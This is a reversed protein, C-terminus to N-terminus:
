EIHDLNEHFTEAMRMVSRRRIDSLRHLLDSGNRAAVRDVLIGERLAAESVVIRDIALLDVIEELLIAGAVIIDRRHEDLGAIDDRDSAHKRETITAVADQLGDASFSEGNSVVAVDSEQGAVIRALNLITGSSGVTTFPSLARVDAIAPALFSRVYTRCDRVSHPGIEGDPFFRDTLRIAGLKLSRAMLVETGEGIVLETSGGGIDIVLIREDLLPVFQIVGLHILRAEEVGSVIDVDIGVEDSARRLFEARNVAERLASTAVAEITAGFSDAIRRFRGLAEIGREIAEPTLMRMVSAGSGLRVVEKERDLVDFHGDPEVRAVLLHFSNTGLDIAAMVEGDSRRGTVAARRGVTTLQAAM